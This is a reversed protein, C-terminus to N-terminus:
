IEYKRFREHRFQRTVRISGDPQMEETVKRGTTAYIPVFGHAFAFNVLLFCAGFDGQILLYDGPKACTLLWNQVPKVHAAIEPLDPPVQSWLPKLEKPLELIQEAGMSRRADTEQEPTLSHNFILYLNM